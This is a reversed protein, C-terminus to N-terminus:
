SPALSPPAPGLLLQQVAASLRFTAVLALQHDEAGGETPGSHVAKTAVSQVEIHQEVEVQEVVSDVAAAAGAAAIRTAFSITTYESAGTSQATVSLPLTTSTPAILKAITALVALAVALGIRFPFDTMPTSPVIGQANPFYTTAMVTHVSGLLQRQPPTSRSAETAGESRATGAM